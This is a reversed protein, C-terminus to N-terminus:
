EKVESIRKKNDRKKKETVKQDSEKEHEQHATSAKALNKIRASRRPHLASYTHDKLLVLQRKRALGPFCQDNKWLESINLLSKGKTPSM